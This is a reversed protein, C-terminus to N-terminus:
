AIEYHAHLVLKREINQRLQLKVANRRAPKILRLLVLNMLSLFTTEQDSNVRQEVNAVVRKRQSLAQERKEKKKKCDEYWRRGIVCGSCFQSFHKFIDVPSRNMM